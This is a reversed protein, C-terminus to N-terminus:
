APKSPLPQLTLFVVARGGATTKAAVVEMWAEKPLTLKAAVPIMTDDDGVVASAAVTITGMTDGNHDKVTITGDDVAALDKGVYSEAQLLRPYPLTPTYISGQENTEFSVPVTLFVPTQPQPARSPM